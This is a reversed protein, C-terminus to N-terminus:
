KGLIGFKTSESKINIALFTIAASLVDMARSELPRSELGLQPLNQVIELQGLQRSIYDLKKGISERRDIEKEAM